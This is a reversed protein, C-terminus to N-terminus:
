GTRSAIEQLDLVLEMLRAVSPNLQERLAPDVDGLGRLRGARVDGLGEWTIGLLGVIRRAADQEESALHFTDAVRAIEARVEVILAEMRARQEASFRARDRRYLRGREDEDMLRVIIALREELLRLRVAVAREQNSNLSM